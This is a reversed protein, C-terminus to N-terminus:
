AVPSQTSEIGSAIYDKLFGLVGPDTLSIGELEKKIPADDFEFINGNIGYKFVWHVEPYGILLSIMTSKLDGVPMRDIHSEQFIATIQTGVGLTSQIDFSGNCSEAAAKFLPIGLGVKRTTRSTVFPDTIRELREADMGKGDDEISMQLLDEETDFLVSITINKAEAAVSNEAIDLLHLALEKM